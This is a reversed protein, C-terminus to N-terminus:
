RTPEERVEIKGEPNKKIGIRRAGSVLVLEGGNEEFRPHTSLPNKLPPFEKVPNGCVDFVVGIFYSGPHAIYLDGEFFKMELRKEFQRGLKISWSSKGGEAGITYLRGSRTLLFGEKRENATWGLIGDKAAPEVNYVTVFFDEAVPNSSSMSPAKFARESGVTFVLNMDTLIATVMRGPLVDLFRDTPPILPLGFDVEGTEAKGDKTRVYVVRDHRVTCRGGMWPVSISFRNATEKAEQRRQGYEVLPGKVIAPKQICSPLAVGMWLALATYTTRKM